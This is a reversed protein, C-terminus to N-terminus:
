RVALDEGPITVNEGVPLTLEQGSSGTNDSTVNGSTPSCSISALAMSAVLSTGLIIGALKKM